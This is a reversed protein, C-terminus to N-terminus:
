NLGSRGFSGAEDVLVLRRSALRKLLGEVTKVQANHFRKAIDDASLPESSAGVVDLIAFMRDAADAPWAQKATTKSKPKARGTAVKTGPLAAQGSPPRLWRVLGAAEEAARKHNLEVLRELIGADDIDAPWGYAELVAADLENHLELLRSTGLQLHLAQEKESMDEASRLKELVNYMDTLGASPVRTQALKRWADLADATAAIRKRTTGNPEPFPFTVFCKTNNYRPDNGAGQRGGMALAWTVHVRSSLVGLYFGDDLTIAYLQHDPCTDMPMAVFVRHKSTEGTV